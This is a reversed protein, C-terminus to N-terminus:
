KAVRRSVVPRHDVLAHSSALPFIRALESIRPRRSVRKRVALTVFAAFGPRLNQLFQQLRRLSDDLLNVGDLVPESIDLLVVRVGTGEHCGRVGGLLVIRLRTLRDLLHRAGDDLGEAVVDRGPVELLRQPHLVPCLQEIGPPGLRHRLLARATRVLDRLSHGREDSPARSGAKGLVPNVVPRVLPVDLVLLHALPQSFCVRLREPVNQFPHQLCRSSSQPVRILIHQVLQFREVRLRFIRQLPYRRSTLM